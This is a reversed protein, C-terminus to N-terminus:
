NGSANAGYGGAALAGSVGFHLAKDRGWWEDEARAEAAFCLVLAAVLPPLLRM